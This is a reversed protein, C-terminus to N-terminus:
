KMLRYLFLVTASLYLRTGANAQAGEMACQDPFGCFGSWPVALDSALGPFQQLFKFQWPEFGLRLFSNQPYDIVQVNCKDIIIFTFFLM